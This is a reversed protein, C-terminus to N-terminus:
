LGGTRPELGLRGVGQFRLYPGAVQPFTFGEHDQRDVPHAATHLMAARDAEVLDAPSAGLTRVVRHNARELWDAFQTTFDAPSAFQRGPM